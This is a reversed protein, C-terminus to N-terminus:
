AGAAVKAAKPKVVAAKSLAILRATEARAADDIPLGEAWRPYLTVKYGRARMAEAVIFRGFKGELTLLGMAVEKVAAQLAFARSYDRAILAQWMAVALDPFAISPPNICGRAGFPVTPLLELTSATYINVTDPAQEIYRFIGAQPTYSLKIGRLNPILGALKALWPPTINIGTYRENNYIVFPRGGTAKAVGTLHADVEAAPHDSYYFPPTSLIADVKSAVARETLWLSSKLYATGVNVMVPLRGKVHKVVTDTFAAREELEMAPGQGASGLIFLAHVGVDILDDIVDLTGATDVEGDARFLTPVPM